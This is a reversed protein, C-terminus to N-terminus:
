RAELSFKFPIKFTLSGKTSKFPPFRWAHACDLASSDLLEHGSSQDLLAREIVGTTSVLVRIVARGEEHRLKAQRPYGPAENHTRVWQIYEALSLVREGSGLDASVNSDGLTSSGAVPVPVRLPVPASGSVPVSITASGLAERRESGGSRRGAVIMGIDVPAFRGTEDTRTWESVWFGMGAFVVCHVAISFALAKIM